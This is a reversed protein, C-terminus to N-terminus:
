APAPDAADAAIGLISKIGAIAADKYREPNERCCSTPPSSGDPDRAVIDTFTGGRDIWFQWNCRPTEEAMDRLAEGSTEPPMLAALGRGFNYCFGQGCGRLETPFLETFLAGM